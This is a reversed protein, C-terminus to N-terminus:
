GGAGGGGAPAPLVGSLGTWEAGIWTSVVGIAGIAAVTILGILVTYEILAAGDEDRTFRDKINEIQTKAAVYLKLV